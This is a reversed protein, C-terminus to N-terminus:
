LKVYEPNIFTAYFDRLNSDSQDDYDFVLYV